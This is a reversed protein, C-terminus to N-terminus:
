IFIIYCGVVSIFSLLLFKTNYKAISIYSEKKAFKQSLRPYYYSIIVQNFFLVQFTVRAVINYEGVIKLDVYKELM